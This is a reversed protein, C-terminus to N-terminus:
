KYKKYKIKLPQGGQLGHVSSIDPILSSIEDKRIIGSRCLEELENVIYSSDTLAKDYLDLFSENSVIGDDMPNLWKDHELNLYELAEVLERHYSFSSTGKLYPDLKDFFIRKFGSSDFKMYKMFSATQYMAEKFTEGGNEIQYVENLTSTLTELLPLGIEESFLFDRYVPYIKSDLSEKTEMLYIDILNEVIGHQWTPNKPNRTHDGSYYIILPHTYADLIHHAVYGPGIFLRIQEDELVGAEEATQLYKYVFEPFNCEQLLTSAHVNNDLKKQNWIKYFDHYILFDHGQAFISYEDYHPFSSLTRTSLKGKLEKYFIDHTKPGPM